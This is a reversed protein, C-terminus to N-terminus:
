TERLAAQSFTCIAKGKFFSSISCFHLTNSCRSVHPRRSRLACGSIRVNLLRSLSKEDVKLLANKKLGMFKSINGSDEDLKGGCHIQLELLLLHSSFKLFLHLLHQNPPSWALYQHPQPFLSSPTHHTRSHPETAFASLCPLSCIHTSGWIFPVSISSFLPSLRTFFSPQPHFSFTHSLYFSTIDASNWPVRDGSCNSVCLEKKGCRMAHPIKAWRGSISSLGGATSTWTKVEPGGRLVGWMYM